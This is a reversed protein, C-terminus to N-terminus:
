RFSAPKHIWNFRPNSFSYNNMVTVRNLHTIVLSSTGRNQRIKWNMTTSPNSVPGQAQLQTVPKSRFHAGHRMSLSPAMPSSQEGTSEDMSPNVASLSIPPLGQNSSSNWWAARLCHAEAKLEEMEEKEEEREREREGEEGKQPWSHRHPWCVM